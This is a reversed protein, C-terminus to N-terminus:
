VERTRRVGCVQAFQEMAGVDSPNAGIQNDALNLEILSVNKHLGPLLDSLGSDGVLPSNTAM